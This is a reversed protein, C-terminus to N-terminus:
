ENANLLAPWHKLTTMGQQQWDHVEGPAHCQGCTSVFNGHCVLCSSPRLRALLIHRNADLSDSSPQLFETTHTKPARDHCSRCNNKSHCVFCRDQNSDKARGHTEAWSSAEHSTPKPGAVRLEGIKGDPEERHCESCKGRQWWVHASEWGGLSLPPIPLNADTARNARTLVAFAYVGVILIFLLFRRVNRHRKKQQLETM